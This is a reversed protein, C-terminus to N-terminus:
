DHSVYRLENLQLHRRWRAAKPHKWFLQGANRSTSNQQGRVKKVLDDRQQVVSLLWRDNDVVNLLGLASDQILILVDQPLGVGYDYRLWDM